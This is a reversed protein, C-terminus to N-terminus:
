LIKDLQTKWSQSKINELNMGTRTVTILNKPCVNACTGCLVCVDSDFVTTGDIIKVANCPCVDQCAHCGEGQCEDSEEKVITGTFPKVIEIADRPCVKECWGCSVCNGFNLLTQGTTIADEKNLDYDSYSCTRCVAKIANTPCARKCVLCYVCDDTYVKIEGEGYPNQVVSIAEGPCLEACIGCHICEEENIEIEGSVLNKRDPLERLITITDQPCITQCAQCYICEEENIKTYHTWTPYEKIETISEDDIKFELAGFPCATACIGCLACTNPNININDMEIIGRAIPLIPGLNLASTPCADKCIGCGVCKENDHTLERKQNGEKQINIM